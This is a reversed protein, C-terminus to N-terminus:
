NKKLKLIITGTEGIGLGRTTLMLRGTGDLTNSRDKIGGFDDFCMDTPQDGTMSWAMTDDALYEFSLVGDFGSLDYWLRSITLTPKNALPSAFTAPDVIVESDLDGEEGNGRINVQVVSWKPGDLITTVSLQAM